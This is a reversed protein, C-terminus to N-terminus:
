VSRPHGSPPLHGTTPAVGHLHLCKRLATRARELAEKLTDRAVGLRRALAHLPQREERAEEAALLRERQLQSLRQLCKRVAERLEERAATEGGEETDLDPADVQGNDSSARRREVRLRARWYDAVGWVCHRRVWTELSADSRGVDFGSLSELVRVCLSQRLEDREDSPLRYRRGACRVESEIWGLVDSWDRVPGAGTM